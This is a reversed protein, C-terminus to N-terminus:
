DNVKPVRGKGLQGIVKEADPFKWVGQCVDNSFTTKGNAFVVYRKELEFYTACLDFIKYLDETPGTHISITKTPSGKWVKEVQFMVVVGKQDDSKRKSLVKGAFALNAHSFRQKVNMDSCTCSLATTSVLAVCFMGTLLTTLLKSRM